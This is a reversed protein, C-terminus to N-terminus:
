ITYKLLKLCGTLLLSRLRSKLLSTSFIRTMPHLSSHEREGAFIALLISDELWSDKVRRVVVRFFCCSHSLNFWNSKTFLNPHLLSLKSYNIDGNSLLEALPPLCLCTPHVAIKAAINRARDKLIDVCKLTSKRNSVIWVGFLLHSTGTAPGTPLIIRLDSEIFSWVYM